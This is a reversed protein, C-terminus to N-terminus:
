EVCEGTNKCLEWKEEALRKDDLAKKWSDNSKDQAKRASVYTNQTSPISQTVSVAHQPSYIGNFSFRKDLWGRVFYGYFTTGWIFKEYCKELQRYPDSKFRPDSVVDNHWTTHLQCFWFSPERNGYKDIVNSQRQPNWLWNEAELTTIFDMDWWSIDRAYQVYSQVISDEPFWTHKIIWDAKSVDVFMLSLWIIAVIILIANCITETTFKM